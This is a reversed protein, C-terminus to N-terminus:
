DVDPLHVVERTLVTRGATTTRDPVRPEKDFDFGERSGFNAVVHLRGDTYLWLRGNRAAALRTAAEVVEDLVEQLSVGRAVSRLVGNSARQQERLNELARALELGGSM